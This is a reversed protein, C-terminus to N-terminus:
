TVILAVPTSSLWQNLVLMQRWASPMVDVVIAHDRSDVDTRCVSGSHRHVNSAVLM